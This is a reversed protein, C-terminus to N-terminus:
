DSLTHNGEDKRQEGSQKANQRLTALRAKARSPLKTKPERDQARKARRYHRVVRKLYTALSAKKELMTGIKGDRGNSRELWPISKRM